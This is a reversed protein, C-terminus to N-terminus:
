QNKGQLITCLQVTCITDLSSENDCDKLNNELYIMINQVFKFSVKLKKCESCQRQKHNISSLIINIIINISSLIVRGFLFNM